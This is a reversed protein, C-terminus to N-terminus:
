RAIEEKMVVFRPTRSREGPWLLVIVELAAPFIAGLARHDNIHRLYQDVFEWGNETRTLENWAPLSHSLVVISMLLLAPGALARLMHLPGFRRRVKLLIIVSIVALVFSVATGMARMLRPWDAHGFTRHMEAPIEPDVLSSNFLGPLDTAVGFALLTAALLMALAILTFVLRSAGGVWRGLFFGDDSPAANNQPSALYAAQSMPEGDGALFTIVILVVAPFITFFMAVPADGRSINGVVFMSLSVFISGCCAIQLLPRFLYQWLSVFSRQFNRKLAFGAFLLSTAGFGLMMAMEDHAHTLDTGLACWLFLGLTAFGVFLFLWLGPVGRAVARFKAPPFQPAPQQPMANLPPPTPVPGGAVAADAVPSFPAAAGPGPPMPVFGPAGALRSRPMGPIPSWASIMQVALVTGGVVGATLQGGGHFAGGIFGGLILGLIIQGLSVRVPRNPWTSKRWDIIFMCVLMTLWIGGLDHLPGPEGVFPLTLVSSLLAACGGVAIKHLFRQEPPLGLSLRRTGFLVGITAGFVALATFITCVAVDSHEGSAIGTGVAVLGIAVATLARRQAPSVPDDVRAATANPQTQNSQAELPAPAPAWPHRRQWRAWRQRIKMGKATWKAQMKLRKREVRDAARNLRGNLAQDVHGAIAENMRGVAQEVNQGFRDWPNFPPRAAGPPASSNSFDANGPLKRAVQGAVMTLSEPSFHSVSNRVHEAGFIAEVMEQVSQYREAPNKAMAKRIVTAFPEEINSVDAQASLHKMLVETPSAGFFPVQGTLMEFLLTGLAYIDISKDYRGEGIEPAMYHVTGVTVTQGSHQSTSMAKSLGYDGIKVYGNEYFINGPKLDRHVIGCEHLYTLGKAIERLFFASKQVGLGSPAADILDRLSPGSVFEMIVWPRTDQGTKVDFITILHPSKLNMCHSIGRLEIQEYTLILKLAVERGSDSLAYYVEGFGGRGAARQITYGDLPRDGHKYQFGRNATTTQAISM